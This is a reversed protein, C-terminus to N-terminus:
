VTGSGGFSSDAGGGANRKSICLEIVSNLCYGAVFVANTETVLLAESRSESGGAIFRAIGAPNGSPSFTTDFDGGAAFVTSAAGLWLAAALGAVNCLRAIFHRYNM